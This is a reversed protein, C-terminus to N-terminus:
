VWKTPHRHTSSAYHQRKYVDLHTYSVTGSMLILPDILDCRGRVPDNVFYPSMFGRDIEMGEVLTVYTEHSKSEEVTILGDKGVRNVVGAVLEGIVPDNNASITAIQKLTEESDVPKSLKKLEEM